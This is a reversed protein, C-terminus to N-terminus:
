GAGRRDFARWAEILRSLAEDGEPIHRRMSFFGHIQGPWTHRATRTESELRTAYDAGEDYLVDQGALVMAAPAVGKLSPALLPSARWDSIAAPDPLYHDRFWRMGGATLGFGDGCRAYSGSAQRSETVPYILLQAVVKPVDDDRAMLALVAALNGGASDGGIAVRGQDIGLADAERVMHRLIAACDEIAAPFPHEPALRYDPSAVVAGARNALARCVDEHTEPSGIVWGGGHLYLLCPAGKSPADLGRWIRLRVGGVHV